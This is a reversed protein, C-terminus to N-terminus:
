SLYNMIIVSPLSIGCFFTVIKLYLENQIKENAGIELAQICPQSHLNIQCKFSYEMLVANRWIRQKKKQKGKVPFFTFSLIEHPVSM